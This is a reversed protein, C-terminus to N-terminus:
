KAHKTLDGSVVRDFDRWIARTGRGADQGTLRIAYGSAVLSAYAMSEGHPLPVSVCLIVGVPELAAFSAASRSCGVAVVDQPSVTKM